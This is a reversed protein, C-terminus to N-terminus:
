YAMSYRFRVSQMRSDSSGSDSPQQHEENNSFVLKCMADNFGLPVAVYAVSQTHQEFYKGDNTTRQTRNLGGGLILGQNFALTGIDFEAYGGVSRITDSTDGDLVGNTASYVNSKQQAYNIGVETAGLMPALGRFPIVVGGGYGFNNSVGCKPCPNMAANDPSAELAITTSRYEFAGSVSLFPWNFNVAPRIGITNALSEKGYETAVELGVWRTPYVHVAVRGAQERFFIDSVEYTHVAFAGSEYPPTKLAGTDELTYLDYGLGKRYVRWTMFRGATIDWTSGNGFQAMVDDANVQYTSDVERLWAVAQGVARIYYDKGLDHRLVGGLVFRGRFDNFTEPQLSSTSYSYKANGIDMEFSGHLELTAVGPVLNERRWPPLGPPPNFEAEPAPPPTTKSEPTAPANDPATPKETAAPADTGKPKAKADDDDDDDAATANDPAAPTEAHAARTLFAGFAVLAVMGLKITRLRQAREINTSAESKVVTDMGTKM